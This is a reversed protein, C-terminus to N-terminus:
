RGPQTAVMSPRAAFAEFWAALQPRGERWPRDAFRFDLYGLACAAAITGIDVRGAFGPAAAELADLAATVKAFQGASWEAWRLPEPRLFNEYRWLIAADMLGDALAEQTLATWRAEGEPILRPAPAQADLWACIVRSDFLTTGDDLALAPIKALPNAAAVDANRNVPSVGVAVPPVLHALGKEAAVVRVKRAYPSADAYFLKPM